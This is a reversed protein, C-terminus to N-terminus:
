STPSAADARVEHRDPQQRRAPVRRARRRAPAHPRRDLAHPGLLRVLRRDPQRRPDAGGRLRLLLAEHSTYFETERLQPATERPRPRLGGHLRAGRGIREALESTASARRATPSSAWTGSTCRTCTPSAARPSPACCTLTAASQNYAQLMREPDPARARGDFDIGNIIDGRYSPLTSATRTRPRRRARSPSSGPWAASRSWRCAAGYTLVVAMQLLVKFTDRINNAHFEAFSEACDGGQLLFAKGEAVEALPEKLRRAEGAFVLPPQRRLEAEVAELKAADSYEPVQRIPLKRWSERSWKEAM